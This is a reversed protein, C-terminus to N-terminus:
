KHINGPQFPLSDEEEDDRYDLNPIDHQVQTRSGLPASSLTGTLKRLQDANYVPIVKEYDFPVALNETVVKGNFDKYTAIYKSMLDEESIYEEFQIDGGIAPDTQKDRSSSCLLGRLTKEKTYKRHFKAYQRYKIAMLKRSFPVVTGDKKTYPELDLVSVLCAYYPEGFKECLPCIETEKVCVYFLDYYGSEPNKLNHEYVFFDPTSDLIIFEKTANVPVYFRFVKHKRAEEKIKSQEVVENFKNFGNIGRFINSM